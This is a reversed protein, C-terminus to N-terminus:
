VIQGMGQATCYVSPRLPSCRLIKEVEQAFQRHGKGFIQIQRRAAENVIERGAISEM